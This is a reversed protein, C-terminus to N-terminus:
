YDFQTECVIEAEIIEELGEVFRMLQPSSAEGKLSLGGIDIYMGGAGRAPLLNTYEIAPKSKREFIVSDFYTSVGWASETESQWIALEKASLRQQIFNPTEMLSRRYLCKQATRLTDDKLGQHPDSKGYDPMYFPVQAMEVKYIVLSKLGHMAKNLTSQSAQQAHRYPKAAEIENKWDFFLGAGFEGFKTSRQQGYVSLNVREDGVQWQANLVVYGSPAAGNVPDHKTMKLPQGLKHNIVGLWYTASEDIAAGVMSSINYSVQLVPRDLAPARAKGRPSSIGLIDTCCFPVTPWGASSDDMHMADPLNAIESLEVGWTYETKPIPIRKSIQPM